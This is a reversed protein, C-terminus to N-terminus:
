YLYENIRSLVGVSVFGNSFPGIKVNEHNLLKVWNIKETQVTKQCLFLM